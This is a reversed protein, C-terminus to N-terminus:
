PAWLKEFAKAFAPGKGEDEHKFFVFAEEWPLERLRGVWRELDGPGYETRRLRLYGFRGVPVLAPSTEDTEALVLSMGQAKLADYVDDAFWSEHRFEFAIRQDKPLLALFASLKGLDKHLWPPFQFLAPGMKEKLELASQFFFDVSDKSEEFGKRHTIRQPAKLSFRFADPVQAAWGLVTKPTPMRYFSNNIEVTPLQTAYYGLMKSAPLDEPYFTGKWQPYSYGSTGVYVRM